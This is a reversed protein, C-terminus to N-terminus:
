GLLEQELKKAMEEINEPPWGPIDMGLRLGMSSLVEKIENLSKRGFNPTRLMEAETKQVLDGIYIINDNKLCNASRVSLELEDVKKLLYRNIQNTDSEGEAAASAAAGAAPAAVPLADEFHVFLQLQDQLIRAAYAVADEPTVTGDTEVTLSLKDYDLEQGVRTNDVKYAVQRVPSYLADIPILGIPADAPRNAVAPVYGKGVDATLEMNLTAGQDLHCIVLDPNMVEIDGVTTIDGARVEAPGTASLQLRRPGDGEMKLAVQKINLVIDTVDERVGALSSFEHLVNEIKISTVAAGQLSSLLVRRLANGLTLGFGRELPEAVFTAKRRGDGAAKIELSNPKKLEQWNKMNVTM